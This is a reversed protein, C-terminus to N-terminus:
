SLIQYVLLKGRVVGQTAIGIARSWHVIASGKVSVRISSGENVNFM